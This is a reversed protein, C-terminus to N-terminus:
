LDNIVSDLGKIEFDTHSYLEKVQPDSEVKPQSFSFKSGKLTLGPIMNEGTVDLQKTEFYKLSALSDGFTLHFILFPPASYKLNQAFDPM